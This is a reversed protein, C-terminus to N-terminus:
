ERFLFYEPMTWSSPRGTRSDRVPIVGFLWGDEEVAATPDAKVREVFWRVIDDHSEGYASKAEAQIEDTHARFYQLATELRRERSRDSLSNDTM